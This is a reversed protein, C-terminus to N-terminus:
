NDKHIENSEEINSIKKQFDSSIQINMYTLFGNSMRILQQPNEMSKESHFLSAALETDM